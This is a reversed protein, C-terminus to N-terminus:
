SVHILGLDVNLGCNILEACGSNLVEQNVHGVISTQVFKHHFALFESMPPQLHIGKSPITGGDTGQQFRTQINTRIGFTFAPGCIQSSPIPSELCSGAGVRESLFYHFRVDRMTKRDIGAKITAFKTHEM